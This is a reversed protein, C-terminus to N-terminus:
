KAVIVNISLFATKSMVFFNPEIFPQYNIHEFFKFRNLNCTSHSFSKDWLGIKFWYKITRKEFGKLFYHNKSNKVTKRVFFIEDKNFLYKGETTSKYIKGPADKKNTRFCNQWPRSFREIEKQKKCWSFLQIEKAEWRETDQKTTESFQM